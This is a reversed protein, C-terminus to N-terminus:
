GLPSLLCTVLVLVLIRVVICSGFKLSDTTAFFAADSPTAVALM